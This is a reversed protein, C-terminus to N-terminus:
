WSMVSASFEVITFKPHMVIAVLFLEIKKAIFLKGSYNQSVCFRVSLQIGLDRLFWLFVSM